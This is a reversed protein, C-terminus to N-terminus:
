FPTQHVPKPAYSYGYYDETGTGFFSPFSEGDVWIKEDGEGYWAPVPNFIALTDGVYIGRGTLTVFNWDRPPPAQLGAEYHWTSHFHLTRDDWNWPAVIARLSARVPDTGLNLLAIQSGSKYPMVWRSVMVGNTTVTRYWSEVPNLGVGSGFFDSVPCWINTEGDCVMKIVLSRLARESLGPAVSLEFRRVAQPGAPMKLQLEGQGSINGEIQL